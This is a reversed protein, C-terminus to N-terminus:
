SGFGGVRGREAKLFTDLLIFFFGLLVCNGMISFWISLMLPLSIFYMQSNKLKVLNMVSATHTFENFRYVPSAVSQTPKPFQMAKYSDIVAVLNKKM